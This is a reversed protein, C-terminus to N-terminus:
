GDSRSPDTWENVACYPEATEISEWHGPAVSFPVRPDPDVAGEVFMTGEAPVCAEVGAGWTCLQGENLSLEASEVDAAVITVTGMFWEYVAGDFGIDIRGDDSTSNPQDGPRSRVATGAAWAPFSMLVPSAQDFDGKALQVGPLCTEAVSSETLAVLSLDGTSSFERGDSLLLRVSVPDAVVLSSGAGCATLLVTAIM